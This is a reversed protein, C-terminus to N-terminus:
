YLGTVCYGGSIGTIQALTEDFEAFLRVHTIRGTTSTNTGVMVERWPPYGGILGATNWQIINSGSAQTTVM